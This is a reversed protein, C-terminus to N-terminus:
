PESSTDTAPTVALVLITAPGAGDNRLSATSGAPLYIQQGTTVTTASVSAPTGAVPHIGIVPAVDVVAIAAKDAELTVQGAQVAIITEGDVTFNITAAGPPLAMTAASVLVAGDTDVTIDARALLGFRLGSFPYATPTPTPTPTATPAAPTATAEQASPSGGTTLLVLLVGIGVVGVAAVKRMM